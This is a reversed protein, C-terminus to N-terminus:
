LQLSKYRKRGCQTTPLLAGIERCSGKKKEEIRKLLADMFPRDKLEGTMRDALKQIQTLDPQPNQVFYKDLLYISVLSAPHETIFNEAKEELAKGSPTGL